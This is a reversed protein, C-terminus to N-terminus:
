IGLQELVNDVREIAEPDKWYKFSLKVRSAFKENVLWDPKEEGEGAYKEVCDEVIFKEVTEKTLYATHKGTICRAREEDKSKVGDQWIVEDEWMKAVYQKGTVRKWLNDKNYKENINWIFMGFGYFSLVIVSFFVYYGTAVTVWPSKEAEVILPLLLFVLVSNIIYRYVLLGATLHAGLECPYKTQGFFTVHSIVVYIFKIFPGVIYDVAFSPAMVSVSFLEGESAKICSVVATEAAIQYGSTRFSGTHLYLMAHSFVSSFMLTTTLIFFGAQCRRQRNVEKPIIGAFPNRPASKAVLREIGFNADTLIVGGSCFTSVIGFKQTKSIEEYPIIMVTVVQIVSEPFSEFLIEM